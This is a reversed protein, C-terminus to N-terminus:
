ATERILMKTDNVVSDFQTMDKDNILMLAMDAARKGLEELPEAITTLGIFESMPLDGVGIVAVDDPVRVRLKKMSKIIKIAISDNLAFIADPCDNKDEFLKEIALDTTVLNDIMWVCRCESLELSSLKVASEFAKFRQMDSVFGHRCGMFAIKKRGSDAFHKIAKDIAPASNWLVTNLSPVDELFEPLDSIFVLPISEILKKVGEHVVSHSHCIVAEDRRQLIADTERMFLAPDRRDVAIFVGYDEANVVSEIGKLVTDAWSLELDSFLVSISNSKQARLNRASQNPVYGLKNAAEMVKKETPKAIRFKKADGRLVCSVTSPSIELHEAINLITINTKSM